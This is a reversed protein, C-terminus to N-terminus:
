QLVCEQESSLDIFMVTSMVNLFVCSFIFMFFFFFLFVLKCKISPM